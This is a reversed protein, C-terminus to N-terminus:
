KPLSMLDFRNTNYFWGYIRFFFYADFIALSIALWGRALGVAFLGMGALILFVIGLGLTCGVIGLTRLRLGTTDNSCSSFGFVILIFRAGFVLCGAKLGYVMGDIEPQGALHMILAGAIMAWSLLVPLQVASYKFLFRSLERFGIGYGAYLPINVGSCLVQQFASGTTLFFVLAACGTYFTGFGIICLKLVGSFLGAGFGLLTTWAIHRFVWKWGATTKVGDPFTMEALAVERDCLWHGLIRELWGQKSWQPSTFLTRKLIIEEIETPGLHRPSDQPDPEPGAVGADDNVYGLLVDPAEVQTIETFVYQSRLQTMSDRLTWLVACVPLIFGLHIWAGGPQLLGFLSVAWGTPLLLNLFPAYQDFVKAVFPWGLIKAAIAVVCATVFLGATILQLPRQPLRAACLMTLALTMMWTVAAVPVVILCQKASYNFFWALMGFPVFLDLLAMLSGRLFKQFEWRFILDDSAPLWALASLDPSAYLISKLRWVQISVLAFTYLSLAALGSELRGTTEVLQWTFIALLISVVPRLLIGLSHNKQFKNTAGFERKLERSRRVTRRVGHELAKEFAPSHLRM